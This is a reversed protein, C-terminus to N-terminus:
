GLQTDNFAQMAVDASVTNESHKDAIMMATTCLRNIVRPKGFANNLIAEVAADDFVDSTSGASELKKLIYQKGEAKSLGEMNYNMVLRQRLAEFSNLALTNNIQQQGVLLVIARDRSDMDFNFIMKLDNLIGTNIHNAEDVIIVPTIKKDLALRLLEDQIRKYNESKHYSPEINLQRSLHSYFEKVTLTSLSSYTVKFLSRNLSKAWNRICTTKGLGPEGTLIGFGNTAQLYELRKIVERSESNDIFVDKSNKVFPDYELSFRSYYNIGLTGM